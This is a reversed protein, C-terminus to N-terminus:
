RLHGTDNFCVLTPRHNDQWQVITLGANAQNLGLWRWSPADLAHRVFWGIVFNHTVVFDYRDESGTVGLYDVAEQLRVAGDDREEDPVSALFAAYRSPVGDSALPMPTRDAVFDCAHLPVAPVHGALIAATEAARPLRSHHLAAFPVGRLREGLAHSQARGLECLGDHSSSQERHRVLYVLTRAMRADHRANPLM